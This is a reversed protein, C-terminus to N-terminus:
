FWFAIARFFHAASARHIRRDEDDPDSEVGIQADGMLVGNGVEL